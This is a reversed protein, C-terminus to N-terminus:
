GPEGCKKIRMTTFFYSSRQIEAHMAPKLLQSRFLYEVGILIGYM